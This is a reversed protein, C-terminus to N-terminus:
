AQVKGLAVEVAEQIASAIYSWHHGDPNLAIAHLAWRAQKEWRCWEDDDGTRGTESPGPNLTVVQRLHSALHEMREREATTRCGEGSFTWGPKSVLRRLEALGEHDAAREPTRKRLWEDWYPSDEWRKSM